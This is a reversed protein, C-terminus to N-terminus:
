YLFTLDIKWAIGKSPKITKWQAIKIIMVMIVDLIVNQEM